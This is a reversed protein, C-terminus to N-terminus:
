PCPSPPGLHFSLTTSRRRHQAQRPEDHQRHGLVIALELLRDLRGRIQDTAGLAPRDRLQMVAPRAPDPVQGGRTPRHGQHPDLPHPPARVLQARGPGPGLGRRLDRRPRRQGLPGAGLHATPDALVTSRDRRHGALEPDPPAGRHGRDAGVARRTDVVRSRRSPTATPRPPRSRTGPRTPSGSSWNRSRCRPDSGGRGARGAARHPRRGCRMLRQDAPHALALRAPPGRDRGRRQVGVAAVGRRQAGGQRVGHPHQIREM